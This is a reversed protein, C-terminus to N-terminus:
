NNKIAKTLDKLLQTRIDSSSGWYSAIVKGERNLLCVYPYQILHYAKSVKADTLLIPYNTPHKQLFEKMFAHKDPINDPYDCGIVQLGQAGYNQQLSDLFPMMEICPKCGSFWFDLLVVKGKWESLTRKQSTRIEIGEFHPAKTGKKLPSLPHPKRHSIVKFHPFQPPFDPPACPTLWEYLQTKHVKHTPFEIHQTLSLLATDKPRFELEWYSQQIDPALKPNYMRLCVTDLNNKLFIVSDASSIRQTWIESEYFLTAIAEYYPTQTIPTNHWTRAPYRHTQKDFPFYADYNKGDFVWVCSDDIMRFRPSIPHGIHYVEIDSLLKKENQICSFRFHSVSAAAAHSLASELYLKADIQAFLSAIYVCHCIFFFSIKQM